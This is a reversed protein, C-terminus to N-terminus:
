IISSNRWYVYLSVGTCEGYVTPMCFPVFDVHDRPSFYIPPLGVLCGSHYRFGWWVVRITGSAGGSLGFPVPLGVLCGSHLLNPSAGGSLGFPVPLGVLCGSHYRIRSLDSDLMLWQMLHPEVCGLGSACVRWSVTVCVFPYTCYSVSVLM